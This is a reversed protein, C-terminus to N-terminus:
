GALGPSTRGLRRLGIGAAVLLLSGIALLGMDLGTFPLRGTTAIPQAGTSVPAVSPATEPAESAGQVPAASGSDREGLVGAPEDGTPGPNGPATPVITAPAAGSDREGLVGAEGGDAPGPAVNQVVGGAGGYADTTPGQAAAPTAAVLVTISAAATAGFHKFM